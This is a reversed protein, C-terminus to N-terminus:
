NSKIDILISGDYADLGEVILKNGDRKVLNVVTVGIPNPRMPSHLAFVGKKNRSQDARPHVQLLKKNEKKLKNMWYLIRLEKCDEIGLLGEIYKKYVIIEHLNENKKFIKGIKKLRM